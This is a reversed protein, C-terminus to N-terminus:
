PEWAYNVLDVHDGQFGVGEDELLNRQLETAEPRPIALRGGAGVVRHWPVPSNPPLSRMARGVMRAHRPFGSEAAIQGYTAVHGTPIRLVANWIM